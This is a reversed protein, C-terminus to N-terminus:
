EKGQLLTKRLKAKKKQKAAQHAVINKRLRLEVVAVQQLVHIEDLLFKSLDIKATNNDIDIVTDEKM